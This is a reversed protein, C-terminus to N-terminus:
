AGTTGPRTNNTVVDRGPLRPKEPQQMRSEGRRLWWALLLLPLLSIAFFVPGGRRHIVSDIMEPGQHVCLLGIVLIRFGNRLIGLPIVAAVLLARRWPSRLLLQSAVLSLIFLVLSSRIGSCERGVELVIGPIQLVQGDQFVPTGSLHFLLGAVHASGAALLHEMALLQQSPIPILFVLFALPFLASKVWSKGFCVFCAAILFFVLTAIRLALLDQAAPAPVFFLSVGALVCLGAPLPSSALTGPLDQRRLYLLYGSVFPVLLLHSYLDTGRALSVLERLPHHFSALLALMLAAFAATRIKRDARFPSSGPRSFEKGEAQM